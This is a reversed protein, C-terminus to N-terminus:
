CRGDFSSKERLPHSTCVHKVVCHWLILGMEVWPETPVLALDWAGRENHKRRSITSSATM